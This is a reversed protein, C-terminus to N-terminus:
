SKLEHQYARWWGSTSWKRQSKEVKREIQKQAMQRARAHNERIIIIDPHNPGLIAESIMLAEQFLMAAEVHKGQRDCVLALNNAALAVDRHDPGNFTKAIELLRKCLPEAKEYKRRRWYIEALCELTTMLRPDGFEFDAAEDLAALWMAQAQFFNQNETAKRAAKQYHEWDSGFNERVEQILAELRDAEETRETKRLLTAYLEAVDAVYSHNPGYTAERIELARKILPEATDFKGTAIYFRGLNKLDTSVSIHDSGNVTERIRLAEILIPEMEDLSNNRCYLDALKTLSDAVALTQPGVSRKLKELQLRATVIAKILPNEAPDPPIETLQDLHPNFAPIHDSSVRLTAEYDGTQTGLLEHLQQRIDEYLPEHRKANAENALARELTAVAMEKKNAALYSNALRFLVRSVQVSGPGFMSSQLKLHQELHEISEPKM